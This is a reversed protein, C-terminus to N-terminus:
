WPLVIHLTQRTIDPDLRNDEILYCVTVMTVCQLWPLVSYDIAKRIFKLMQNAKFNGADLSQEIIDSISRASDLDLRNHRCWIYDINMHIDACDINEPHSKLQLYENVPLERWISHELITDKPLELVLKLRFQQFIMGMLRICQKIIDMDSNVKEVVNRILLNTYEFYIFLYASDNRLLYELRDILVKYQFDRNLKSIVFPITIKIIPHNYILLHLHGHRYDEWKHSIINLVPHKM